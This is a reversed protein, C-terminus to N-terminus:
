TGGKGDLLAADDNSNPDSKIPPAERAGWAIAFIVFAWFGFLFVYAKPLGLNFESRDFLSLVPPLLVLISVCFLVISWEKKRGTRKMIARTETEGCPENIQWRPKQKWFVM